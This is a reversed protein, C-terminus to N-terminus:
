RFGPAGRSATPYESHRALDTVRRGPSPNGCCATLCGAGPVRRDASLFKIAVQRDLNTDTALYVEGMGGSGLKATIKYHSITQGIM